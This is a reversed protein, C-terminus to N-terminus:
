NRNAHSVTAVSLRRGCGFDGEMKARLSPEVGGGGGELRDVAVKALSLRKRGGVVAMANTEGELLGFDKERDCGKSIGVKAQHCRREINGGM